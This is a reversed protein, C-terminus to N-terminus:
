SIYSPMFMKQTYVWKKQFSCWCIGLKGNVSNGYDGNNIDMMEAFATQTRTPTGIIPLAEIEYAIVKENKDSAPLPSDTAKFKGMRKGDVPNLAAAVVKHLAQDEVDPVTVKSDFKLVNFSGYEGYLWARMESPIPSSASTKM